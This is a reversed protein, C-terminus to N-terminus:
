MEKPFLLAVVMRVQDAGANDPRVANHYYQFSLNMPQKGILTIKSVGLGLPLTWQQGSPASWNATIAPAFSVSWGLKFNYNIFPQTYFQNIPTTTSSGGIRWMQNIVAGLVFKGPMALLVATPGAAFQGTAIASVTATPLSLIPGFGWIVGSTHTPSLYIQEQIDAIGKLKDGTYTPISMVPVVTRSVINYDKNLPLPLVPQILTQSLTQSGLGGGTFWNFQIPITNMDAVPNQSAKALALMEAQPSGPPPEKPAEKVDQAFISTSVALGGAFLFVSIKKMSRLKKFVSLIEFMTKL